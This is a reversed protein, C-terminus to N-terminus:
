RPVPENRWPADAPWADDVNPFPLRRGPRILFCADPRDPFPLVYHPLGARRQERDLELSTRRLERRTEPRDWREADMALAADVLQAYVAAPGDPLAATLLWPFITMMKRLLLEHDPPWRLPSADWYCAEFTRQKILDHAVCLDHIATRPYPQLYAPRVTDAQIRGCLRFTELLEDPTESPIGMMVYARTNVGAARLLAFAREVRRVSHPRRLVQKLIRPSGSEIGFRILLCGTEALLAALEENVDGVTAMTMYPLGFEARIRRALAAFWDRDTLSTDDDFSLIKMEGRALRRIRGIETVAADVSRRRIRGVQGRRLGTDDTYCELVSENHCYTCRYPCGRTLAVSGIGRNARVFAAVDLDENFPAVGDLAPPPRLPSRLVSGDPRRVWFNPVRPAPDGNAWGDVFDALLGDCEGRGIADVVGWTLIEEPALTPHVGGVVIRLGGLQARLAAALARAHVVHGSAFSIAVVDAAGARTHDVLRPLDWPLGVREDVPCLRVTHGRDKLEQSLLTVGNSPGVPTGVNFWYFDIRM